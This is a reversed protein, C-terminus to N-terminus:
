LSKPDIDELHEHGKEAYTPINRNNPDLTWLRNVPKGTLREYSLRIRASQGVATKFKEAGGEKRNNYRYTFETTYRHLHETSVFHYIGIIGRKFTSWFNEIGNTHFLGETRYDGANSNGKVRVHEFDKELGVYSVYHDTIVTASKEVHEVMIPQLIEAKINPVVFTRLKGNRELLGVVPTKDVEGEAYKTKKSQHRNRNKCGVFTEDVEVTGKLMHPATEKFMERIRHLLHWASKQTIQLQEALQLSSVGKKGTTILFIAAFWTRLPLKSAHFITGVTATFKKGCEKSACRYEPIGNKHVLPSRSKTTYIHTGNCHPCVPKGEDWIQHALFEYCTAEEKFYDNLQLLSKFNTTM